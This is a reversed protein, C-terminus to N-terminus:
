AKHSQQNIKEFFVAANCGGFGAATKLCFDTSASIFPPAAIEGRSNIAIYQGGAGDSVYTHAVSAASDTYITQHTTTGPAYTYLRYGAAFDGTSTFFQANFVGPRTATTM